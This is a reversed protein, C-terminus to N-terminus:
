ARQARYIDLTWFFRSRVQEYDIMGSERLRALAPVCDRLQQNFPVRRTAIRCLGRGFIKTAVDLIRGSDSLSLVPFLLYGRPNLFDVAQELMRLVHATGDPGGLPVSNPFWSSLRAVDEAVGSVDDIILDFRQGSVPEFLDGELVTVANAVGNIAANIRALECAQRMLDVAYVRRAGSLALAVAIPGSGCGLDLVTAGHLKRRDVQDTLVSTTLTPAFVADDQRLRLVHGMVTYTAETIRIVEDAAAAPLDLTTL